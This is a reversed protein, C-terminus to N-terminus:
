IKVLNAAAKRGKQESVTFSVLDWKEIEKIGANKLASVHLFIDGNGIDQDPDPLIFGYGKEASYWKIQGTYKNEM